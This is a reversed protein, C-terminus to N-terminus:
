GWGGTAEILMNLIVLIPTTGISLAGAVSMEIADFSPSKQTGSLAHAADASGTAFSWAGERIANSINQLAQNM